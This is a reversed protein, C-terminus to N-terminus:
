RSLAPSPLPHRAFFGALARAMAAPEQVHLLHTAGPLEYEEAAPLWDLLLKRREGFFPPSREGGVVLAPEQIRKAEEEGFVWDFVAPLEEGFFTDADAAAQAYAGPLGREAADACGPGCVGNMWTAVAGAADGARYRELAPMAVTRVMQAHLDTQAAPRAAEMLALSGVVEPSDLALQLAICAGSSHGVVHARDIGAEAMLVRCQAAQEAIGAAGAAPSSRGYGVRHYSLVSYWDILAPEDLLPRFFDAFVGAHILVVPEGAGRIEYELDIGDLTALRM